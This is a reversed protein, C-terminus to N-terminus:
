LIDVFSQQDIKAMNTSGLGFVQFGILVAFIIAYIWYVSFKPGKKPQNNENGPQRNMRPQNPREERKQQQESM